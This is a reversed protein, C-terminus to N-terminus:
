ITPPRYQGLVTGGYEEAELRAREQPLDFPEDLQINLRVQSSNCAPKHRCPRYSRSGLLSAELVAPWKGKLVRM